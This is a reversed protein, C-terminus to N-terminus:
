TKEGLPWFYGQLSRSTLAPPARTTVSFSKWSSLVKWSFSSNQDGGLRSAGHFLELIAALKRIKRGPLLLPQKLGDEGELALRQLGLPFGSLDVGGSATIQRGRHPKEM